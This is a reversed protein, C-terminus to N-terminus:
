EQWIFQIYGTTGSASNGGNGGATGSVALLGGGGGGGGGSGGVGLTGAIGNGGNSGGSGSAGGNGGIAITGGASGVDGGSPIGGGGGGGGGGTGGAAGGAGSNPASSFVSKTVANVGFSGAANAAGGAGGSVGAGGAGVTLTHFTLPTVTLAYACTNTSAGAQGAGNGAAATTTSGGGGGAGSGGSASGGRGMVLLQTVGAPSIWAGSSSFTIQAFNNAASTKYWNTNDISSFEYNGYPASLLLSGANGMINESAHQQLTVVNVGFFGTTDIIKVRRYPSPSPLTLTVNGGSADVPVIIDTAAIAYTGTTVTAAIGSVPWGASGYDGNTDRLVITSATNSTTATTNANPLIGTVGTTLPL